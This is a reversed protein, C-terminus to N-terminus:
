GVGIRSRDSTTSLQDAHASSSCPNPASDAAPAATLAGASLLGGALVSYRGRRVTSATMTM